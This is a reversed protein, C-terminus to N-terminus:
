GTVRQVIAVNNSLWVAFLAVALIVLIQRMSPM